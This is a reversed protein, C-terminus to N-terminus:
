GGGVELTTEVVFSGSFSTRRGWVSTDTASSSHATKQHTDQKFIVDGEQFVQSFTLKFLVASIFNGSEDKFMPGM